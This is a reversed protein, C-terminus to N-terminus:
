LASSQYHKFGDFNFNQVSPLTEELIFHRNQKFFYDQICACIINYLKPLNNIVVDNIKLNKTTYYDLNIHAFLYIGFIIV